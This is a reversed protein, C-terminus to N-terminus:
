DIITTYVVRSSCYLCGLLVKHLQLICGGGVGGDNEQEDTVKTIKLHKRSCARFVTELPTFNVKM